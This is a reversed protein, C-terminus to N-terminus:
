WIKLNRESCHKILIKQTLFLNFVKQSFRFKIKLLTKSLCILLPELVIAGWVILGRIIAGWVIVGRVIAGRFISGRVIAVWSLQGGSLQRWFIAEGTIAGPYNARPCTTSLNNGWLIVSYQYNVGFLHWGFFQGGSLPGWIFPKWTITRLYNEKKNTAM